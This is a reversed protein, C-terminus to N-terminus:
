CACQCRRATPSVMIGAALVIYNVGEAPAVFGRTFQILEVLPVKGHKIWEKLLDKETEQIKSLPDHKELLQLATDTKSADGLSQLPLWM